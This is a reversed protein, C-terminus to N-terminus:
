LIENDKTTHRAFRKVRNLSRSLVVPDVPNLTFYVAPAKGSWEIAARIFDERHEWDFYGSVTGGGEANLVRLEVVMGPLFFLFVWRRIEAPDSSLRIPNM